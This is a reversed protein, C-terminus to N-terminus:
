KTPEGTGPQSVIVFAQTAPDWRTMVVYNKDLGRQPTKEFDYIGNVGPYGKLHALADRVQMASPNEPLSALVHLVLTAGEWGDASPEDPKQGIARFASFMARHAAEVRPDLHINAGAQPWESSPLYLEKPLFPAYQNMQAYTMNASTTVVPVDLGSEVLGKFVTAVQAGPSWALFAQPNAAKIKEIQAAVSVDTPNYHAAAVIKMGANEPLRLAADDAKEIDQGSADISYIAGLRTLHEYRLFRVSTNVLEDFNVSSSFIYSGTVPHIAPSLCYEVPGNRFLPSMANCLAVLTSGIIIPPHSGMIAHSLQVAVQPTSQDDHIIFAAPRGHIGGGANFAKLALQMAQWERAGLFAAGGTLPLVVPIDVPKPAAAAPAVSTALLALLALGKGVVRRSSATM